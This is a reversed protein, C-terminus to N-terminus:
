DAVNYFGRGTKANGTIDFGEMVCHSGLFRVVAGGAVEGAGALVPRLGNAQIGRVTIKEAATGNTQFTIGGPYTVGGDVEVIDGPKLLPAITQLNAHARKPGVQYTTARVTSLAIFVSALLLFAVPM